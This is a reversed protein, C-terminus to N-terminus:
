QAHNLHVGASDLFATSLLSLSFREAHSEGGSIRERERLLDKTTSHCARQVVRMGEAAERAKGLDNCESSCPRTSESSLLDVNSRGASMVISTSSSIGKEEVEGESALVQVPLDAGTTSVNSSRADVDISIPRRNSRCAM